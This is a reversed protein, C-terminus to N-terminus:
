EITRAVAKKLLTLPCSSTTLPPAGGGTSRRWPRARQRGARQRGPQGRPQGKRQGRTGGQGRRRARAAEQARRPLACPRRQRGATLDAVRRGGVVAQARAAPRARRTDSRGEFPGRSPGANDGSRVQTAGAESPCARREDVEVQALALAGRAVRDGLGVQRRRQHARVEGCRAAGRRVEGCRWAGRWVEGTRPAGGRMEGCRGAVEGPLHVRNRVLALLVRQPVQAPGVVPERHLLLALEQRTRGRGGRAAAAM